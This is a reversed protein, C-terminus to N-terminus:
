YPSAIATNIGILEGKTNVLAGGSNGPNVAADTQIFSEIKYNGELININRGKASVIGATVTSTLNFPNGVALVWEGIRTSDSNGFELYPLDSKNIKILALDTSPDKGIVKAEFTRKDYLTVELTNGDEIVHNNTVIYGDSSIIVGSGTSIGPNLSGWVDNSKSRKSGALAKINVVSTTVMEAAEIFNTPASTFHLTKDPRSMDVESFAGERYSAYQAPTREQITIIETPEGKVWDYYLQANKISQEATGAKANRLCELRLEIDTVCERYDVLKKDKWKKNTSENLKLKEIM